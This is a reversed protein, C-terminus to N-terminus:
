LIHVIHKCEINDYKGCSFGGLWAKFTKLADM